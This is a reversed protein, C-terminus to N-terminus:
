IGTLGVRSVSTKPMRGSINRRASEVAAAGGSRFGPNTISPPIAYDEANGYRREGPRFGPAEPAAMCGDSPSPEMYLRRWGCWSRVPILPGSGAMATTNVPLWLRQPDKSNVEMNDTLWVQSQQVIFKPCDVRMAM